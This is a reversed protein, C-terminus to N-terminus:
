SAWWVTSAVFGSVQESSYFLAKRAEVNIMAWDRQTGKIKIFVTPLVSANKHVSTVYTGVSMTSLVLTRHEAISLGPLVTM